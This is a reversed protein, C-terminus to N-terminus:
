PTNAILAAPDYGIVSLCSSGSALEYGAVTHASENVYSPNADLNGTATYGTYPTELDGGANSYFCNSNAQNGTGVTGGWWYQVGYQGTSNTILNQAVVNNSSTYSSNSGFIVGMRNDDIVNHTVQTSEAGPYLQVGWGSPMGWLINNTITAASTNDVYVGHDEQPDGPNYGCQHIADYEILANTATAVYGTVDSGLIICSGPTNGNTIDSHLLSDNNGLIQVGVADIGTTNINLHTMTIYDSGAPVYIQGNTLSATQGPYGELTFPASSSGSHDFKLQDGDAGGVLNYTGGMLCGTPQAATLSDSLKEPTAFPSSYSGSNTDSGSTSAYLSCGNYTAYM